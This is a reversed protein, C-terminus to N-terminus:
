KPSGENYDSTYICCDRLLPSASLNGFNFCTLSGRFFIPYMPQGPSSSRTRLFIRGHPITRIFESCKSFMSSQLKQKRSAFFIFMHALSVNTVPSEEMGSVESNHCYLRSVLSERHVGISAYRSGPNKSKSRTCKKILISQVTVGLAPQHLCKQVKPM